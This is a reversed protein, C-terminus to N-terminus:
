RTPTSFLIYADTYIAFQLSKCSGACVAVCVRGVGPDYMGEKEAFMQIIRMIINPWCRSLACGWIKCMDPDHVGEYEVYLPDYVNKYEAYV